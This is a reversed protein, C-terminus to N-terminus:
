PTLRLHYQYWAEARDLAEAWTFGKDQAIQAMSLYQAVHEDAFMGPVAVHVADCRFAHFRHRTEGYRDLVVGALCGTTERPDGDNPALLRMPLSVDFDDLHEPGLAKLREMEERVMPLAVYYCTTGLAQDVPRYVFDPREGVVEALLRRATQMSLPPLLATDITDQM